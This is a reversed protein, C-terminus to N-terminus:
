LKPVNYNLNKLILCTCDQSTKDSLESKHSQM